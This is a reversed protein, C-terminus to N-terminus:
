QAEAERECTGVIWGRRIGLDSPADLGEAWIVYPCVRRWTRTHKDQLRVACRVRIYPKRKCEEGGLSLM